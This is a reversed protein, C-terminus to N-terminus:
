YYKVPNTITESLSTAFNPIKKTLYEVLLNKTYQESEYHGIDVLLISKEAKFYDHYKLDSTVYADAGCAKAAEIGFAGSGGLVAVKKISKLTFESHKLAPTGMHKKLHDLFAKESLEKELIGVRGMGIEPHTNELRYVEYAISEYPHSNQLANLVENEVAEDFVIQIKTESVFESKGVQGISPNSGEMPTFSGTGEHIFSCNKYAGITGAGAQYLAEQVESAVQSPVYTSLKKVIGKKPMLIRTNQIGIVECIKYNVGGPCNDLATHMSYIAIDNKIAKLVTKSVYDKPTLQKLGSFIIPHFSVILNCNKEIAEDVVSELTDLTVLINTVSNAPDGVLLGVNDFDEAYHLPALEELVKCVDKITM